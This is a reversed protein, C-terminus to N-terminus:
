VGLVRPLRQLYIDAIGVTERQRRFYNQILSKRSSSNPSSLFATELPLAHEHVFGALTTLDAVMRMLLPKRYEMGQELRKLESVSAGLDRIYATVNREKPVTGLVRELLSAGRASEQVAHQYALDYVTMNPDELSFPSNYGIKAAYTTTLSVYEKLVADILTVPNHEHKEQKDNLMIAFGCAIDQVTIYNPSQLYTETPNEQALARKVRRILSIADALKKVKVIDRTIVEEKFSQVISLVKQMPIASEDLTPAYSFDVGYRRLLPNWDAIVEKEYAFEQKLSPSLLALLGDTFELSSRMVPCTTKHPDTTYAYLHIWDKALDTFINEDVGLNRALIKKYSALFRAHQGNEGSLLLASAGISSSGNPVDIEVNRNSQAADTRKTGSYKPDKTAPPNQASVVFVPRKHEKDLTWKRQALVPVPVGLEGGDGSSLRIYGDQLMLVQNTDGRNVEDIFLAAKTDLEAEKLAIRVLGGEIKGETYPQLVNSMTANLRLISYNKESLLTKFLQEVTFTKGVGTKGELLIPMKERLLAASLFDLINIYLTEAQPVPAKGNLIKFQLSQEATDYKLSYLPTPMTTTHVVGRSAELLALMSAAHLKRDLERESIIGKQELATVLRELTPIM